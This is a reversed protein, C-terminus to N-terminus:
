IRRILSAITHAMDQPSWDNTHDWLAITGDPAIVTTSLSHVIQAKDPEYVLGFFQAVDSLDKAAPVAFQWNPFSKGPAPKRYLSAYHKLVAPTDHQPDLSVSLFVTRQLAPTDSLLKQVQQFNQNLRPCFDPLPCRTYIFSVLVTKGRFDRLHIHHGDQNVLAFDPVTEGKEPIRQTTGPATKGSGKHVVTIKELRGKNESVVLDANVTDGPQLGELQKPDAADYGMTMAPMLGPIDGHKLTIIKHAADVSVVEGLVPYHKEPPKAGCGATLLLSITTAIASLRTTWRM